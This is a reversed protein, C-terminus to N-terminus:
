ERYLIRLKKLADRRWAKVASKNVNYITAIEELTDNYLFTHIVWRKQNVTLSKCYCEITEAELYLDTCPQTMDSDIKSDETLMNRNEWRIQKRLENLLRGKITSYALTSFAAKTEDYKCSAEWLAQLSISYYHDIDKYIKLSHIVNFILPRYQEVLEDFNEM